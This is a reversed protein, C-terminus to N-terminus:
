ANPKFHNQAKPLAWAKFSKKKKFGITQDTKIGNLFRNETKM